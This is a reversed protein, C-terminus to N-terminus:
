RSRDAGICSAWCNRAASARSQSPGSSASRSRRLRHTRAGAGRSTSTCILSLVKAVPSRGLAAAVVTARATVSPQGGSAPDDRDALHIAHVHADGRAEAREGEKGRQPHGIIAAMISGPASGAAKLRARALSPKRMTGAKTERIDRDPRQDADRHVEEVPRMPRDGGPASTMAAAAVLQRRSM